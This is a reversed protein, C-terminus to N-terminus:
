TKEDKNIKKCLEKLEHERLKWHYKCENAVKSPLIHGKEKENKIDDASTGFWHTLYLRSCFESYSSATTWTGRSSLDYKEEAKLFDKSYGGHKGFALGVEIECIPKRSYNSLKYITYVNDSIRHKYTPKAM